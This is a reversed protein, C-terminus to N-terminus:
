QALRCIRDVETEPEFRGILIPYKNAATEVQYKTFRLWVKNEQADARDSLSPYSSGM